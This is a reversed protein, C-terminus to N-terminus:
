RQSASGQAFMRLGRSLRIMAGWCSGSLGAVNTAWRTAPTGRSLTPTPGEFPASSVSLGSYM